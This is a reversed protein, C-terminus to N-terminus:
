KGIKHLIPKKKSKSGGSLIEPHWSCTDWWANGNLIKLQADITLLQITLNLRLVNNTIMSGIENIEPMSLKVHNTSSSVQDCFLLFQNELGKLESSKSAQFEEDTLPRIKIIDTLQNTNTLNEPVLGLFYGLTMNAWNVGTLTTGGMGLENKDETYIMTRSVHQIIGNTDYLVYNTQSFVNISCLMFCAIIIKRM